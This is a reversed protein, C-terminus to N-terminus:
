GQICTWTYLAPVSTISKLFFEGLFDAFFIANKVWFLALYIVFFIIM